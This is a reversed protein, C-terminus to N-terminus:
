KKVLKLKNKKMVHKRIVVFLKQTAKEAVTTNILDAFVLYTISERLKEYHKVTELDFKYGQKRLQATIKPNLPGFGIGFTKNEM